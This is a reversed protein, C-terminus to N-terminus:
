LEKIQQILKKAMHHWTYNNIATDYATEIVRNMEDENNLYYDLKEDFDSLDNNFIVCNVGDTFYDEYQAPMNNCLLLTKSLMVEFYRPSVDLVPGTTGLWMKCENIKTAYEETSQIRYEMTNSSNWFTNRNKEVLKEYVRERLNATPGFIKQSGDNEKGHLAGSFGIDYKKEVERPYFIKPTATFPLRISKIGTKAQFEKYTCQSDIILDVKNNECFDLKKDLMTQPKHIMCIVPIDLTSLGKIKNFFEHHSQAFYGLGFIICDVGGEIQSLIENIDAPVGQLLYIQALLSLERYLDGYYQYLHEDSVVNGYDIYLIKM